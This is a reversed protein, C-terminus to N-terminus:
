WNFPSGMTSSCHCSSQENQGRRLIRKEYSSAGGRDQAAPSYKANSDSSLLPNATGKYTGHYEAALQEFAEDTLWLWDSLKVQKFEWETLDNPKSNLTFYRKRQSPDRTYSPTPPLILTPSMAAASAMSNERSRLAQSQAPEPRNKYNDTLRQVEQARSKPSLEPDIADLEHQFAAVDAAAKRSEV